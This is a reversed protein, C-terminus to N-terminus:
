RRRAPSRMVLFALVAGALAISAPMPARKDETLYEAGSVLVFRMSTDVPPLHLVFSATKNGDDGIREDGLTADIVQERGDIVAEGGWLLLARALDRDAALMTSTNEVRFLSLAVDPQTTVTVEIAYLSGLGREPMQTHDVYMVIDQPRVIAGEDTFDKGAMVVETRLRPGGTLNGEWVVDVGTIDSVQANQVPGQTWQYHTYRWARVATDTAPEYFGNVNLDRYEVLREFRWQAWFRGDARSGDERYEVGYVGKAPAITHTVVHRLPDGALTYTAELALAEPEALTVTRDLEGPQIRPRAGALHAEALSPALALALLALAVLRSM